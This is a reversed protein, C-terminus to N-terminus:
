RREFPHTITSIVQERHGADLRSLPKHRGAAGQPAKENEILLMQADANM